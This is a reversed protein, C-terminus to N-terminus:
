RVGGQQINNTVLWAMPAGPLGEILRSEQPAVAVGHKYVLRAGRDATEALVWQGGIALVLAILRIRSLRLAPEQRDRWAVEFRLLTIGIFVILTLFAWDSHDNMLREVEASAAGVQNAALKGAWIAAGAGLVGLGYLSLAARDLWVSRRMVLCAVDFVLAAPLLAIPFHVVVPHLNPLSEL